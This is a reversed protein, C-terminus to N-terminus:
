CDSAGQVVEVVTDKPLPIVKKSCSVTYQGGTKLLIARCEGGTTGPYDSKIYINAEDQYDEYRFLTGAKLSYLAVSKRKSAGQIRVTNMTQEKEFFFSPVM